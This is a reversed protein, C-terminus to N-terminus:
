REGRFAKAACYRTAEFVAPAKIPLETPAVLHPFIDAILSTDATPRLRLSVGVDGNPGFAALYFADADDYQDFEGGDSAELNWGRELIFHEYRQRHMTTLASAYLHRNGAHILHIMDARGFPLPMVGIM